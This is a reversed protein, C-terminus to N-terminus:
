SIPLSSANSLRIREYLSAFSNLCVCWDCLQAVVGCCLSPTERWCWILTYRGGLARSFLNSGHIVLSSLPSFSRSKYVGASKNTGTGGTRDFSSQLRDAKLIKVTCVSCQFNQRRFGFTVLLRDMCSGVRKPVFWCEGLRYWVALTRTPRRLPSNEPQCNNDHCSDPSAQGM